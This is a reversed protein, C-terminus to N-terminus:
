SLNTLYTKNRYNDRPTVYNLFENWRTDTINNKSSTLTKKCSEIFDVIHQPTDQHDLIDNCHAIAKAKLDPLLNDIRYFSPTQIIDVDLFLNNQNCWNILPKLHMINLNMVVTHVLCKTNHMANIKLINNSTTNWDAPYRIYEYQENIADVSFMFRILQFKQLMKEWKDNWITANTSIHLIMKKADQESIEDLLKFLRKEYLPEGGRVNLLKPKMEQLVEKVHEIAKDNWQFDHQEFQNVGLIKNEHLISSSNQEKCMLCKLNCTNGFAIELANVRPNDVDIGFIQYEKHSRNRMSTFGNKEHRWCAHCNPHQKDQLFSERVERLYDSSLWEKASHKQINFYNTDAHKCCVLFNGETKVSLHHFPLACFNKYNKIDTM